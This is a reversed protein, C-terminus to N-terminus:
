YKSRGGGQCRRTHAQPVFFEPLWIRRLLVLM